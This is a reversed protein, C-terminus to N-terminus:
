KKRQKAIEKRVRALQEAWEPSSHIRAVAAAAVLRGADVDSQYHYGAIVRSQGYEYGQKLIAYECDPFLEVLVLAVAWGTASHSSPFSSTIRHSAEDHPISTPENFQVFPRKRFNNAKLHETSKCADNVVMNLLKFLEPYTKRDITFGLAPAFGKCISDRNMYSDFVAAEGRATNRVSKGWNYQSWDNFFRMSATDPPLPVFKVGPAHETATFFSPYKAMARADVENMGAPDRAIISLSLAMALFLMINRDFKM